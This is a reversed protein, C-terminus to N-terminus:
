NFTYRYGASFLLVSRNGIEDGDSKLTGLDIMYRANLLLASTKTFNFAFDAGFATGFIAANDIKDKSTESYNGWFAFGSTFIEENNFSSSAPLGTIEYVLLSMDNRLQSKTDDSIALNSAGVAGRVGFSMRSLANQAFSTSALLAGIVLTTILKKM